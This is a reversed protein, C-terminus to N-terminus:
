IAIYNKDHVLFEEKFVIQSHSKEVKEREFNLNTSELTSKFSLPNLNM